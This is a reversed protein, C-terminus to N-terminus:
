PHAAAASGGGCIMPLAGIPRACRLIPLAARVLANLPARGFSAGFRDDVGLWGGPPSVCASRLSGQYHGVADAAATRCQYADDVSSTPPVPM